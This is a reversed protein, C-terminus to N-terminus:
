DNRDPLQWYWVGDKKVSNIDLAKKTTVFTQESIDEGKFFNQIETAKVPGDSLVVRLLEAAQTQKSQKSLNEVSEDINEANLSERDIWEIRQNTDVTFFMDSGRPTLSSKVHHVVSIDDEEALREM